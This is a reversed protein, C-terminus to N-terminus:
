VEKLVPLAMFHNTKASKVTVFFEIKKKRGATECYRVVTEYNAPDYYQKGLDVHGCYRGAGDHSLHAARPQGPSRGVRLRFEISVDQVDAPTSTGANKFLVCFRNEGATLRGSSNTLVIDLYKTHKSAIPKAAINPTPDQVVSPLSVSFLLSAVLLLLSVGPVSRIRLTETESMFRGGSSAPFPAMGRVHVAIRCM